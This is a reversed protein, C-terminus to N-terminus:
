WMEAFEKFIDVFQLGDEQKRIFSLFQEQTVSSPKLLLRQIHDVKDALTVTNERVDTSDALFTKYEELKDFVRRKMKAPMVNIALEKPNTLCYLRVNDKNLMGREYWNKHFDPLDWISLNTITPHAIFRLNNYRDIAHRTDEVQKWKSNRRIFEARQGSCDVSGYIRVDNFNNLLEFFNRGHHTYGSMNSMVHIEIDVRNRKLFFNLLEDYEKLLHPEGGALYLHKISPCFEEATKLMNAPTNFAHLPKSGDFLISNGKNCYICKFNCINNINIVWASMDGNFTGDAATNAFFDAEKDLYDIAALKNFPQLGTICHQQCTTPLEGKLIQARM